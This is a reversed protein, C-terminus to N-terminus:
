VCTPPGTPKDTLSRSARGSVSGDPVCRARGDGRHSSDALHDIGTTRAPPDTVRIPDPDNRRRSPQQVPNAGSTSHGPPLGGSRCLIMRHLSTAAAARRSRTQSRAPFGFFQQGLRQRVPVGPVAAMRRDSPLILPPVDHAMPIFRCLGPGATEHRDAGRDRQAERVASKLRDGAPRRGARCRHERTAPPPTGQGRIRCACRM